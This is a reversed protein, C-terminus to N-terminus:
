DVSLEPELELVVADDPPDPAADSNEWSSVLPSPCTVSDSNTAPRGDFTLLSWAVAKHFLSSGLPLPLRSWLSKTEAIFALAGDPGGDPGGGLPSPDEELVADLPSEVEVLLSLTAVASCVRIWLRNAELLASLLEDAADDDDDDDDDDDSLEVVAALPAALVKLWSSVL